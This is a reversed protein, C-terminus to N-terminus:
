AGRAIRTSSATKTASVLPMVEYADSEGEESVMPQSDGTFMGVVSISFVVMTILLFAILPMGWLSRTRLKRGKERSLFRLIKEVWHNERPFM